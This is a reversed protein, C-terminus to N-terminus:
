SKQANALAATLAEYVAEYKEEPCETIRRIGHEKNIRLIEPLAKQALLKQAVDRLDAQTIKGPAKVEGDTGPLPVEAAPAEPAPAPAPPTPIEAAPEPTPAPAPAPKRKSSAPAPNEKITEVPAAIAGPRNKLAATLDRIAATLEHITTEIM